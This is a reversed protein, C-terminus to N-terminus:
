YQRDVEEGDAATLTVGYRDILYQADAAMAQWEESLSAQEFASRDDFYVEALRFVGSTRANEGGDLVTIRRIGPLKEALPFHVKEYHEDFEARDEERPCSWVGVAKYM